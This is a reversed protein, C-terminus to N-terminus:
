KARRVAEVIEQVRAASVRGIPQAFEATKGIVSAGTVWETCSSGVHIEAVGTAAMLKAANSASLGSGAMIHIRGNAQEQLAKILGRGEWATAQQGSTLLRDVGLRVLDELATFPDATVDFARHFTVALPRAAEILIRTRELNVQGEPTLLGFVVGNADLAVATAVDRRMVEFELESYCFDGGRPRIMVHMPISLKERVLAITGQSPTTGGEGLNECLEIRSAGGAQAAVASEIGALCVEVM